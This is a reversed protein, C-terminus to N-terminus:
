EFVILIENAASVQVACVRFTEENTRDYVKVVLNKRESKPVEKIIRYLNQASLEERVANM